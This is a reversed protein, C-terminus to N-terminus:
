LLLTWIFLFKIKTFMAFSNIDLNFTKFINKQFFDILPIIVKLYGKIFRKYFRTFNLFIQINYINRPIPWQLIAQICNTKISIDELSIVFSLFFVKQIYFEYKNLNIFFNYRPHCTLPGSLRAPWKKTNYGKM